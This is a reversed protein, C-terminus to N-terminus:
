IDIVHLLTADIATFAWDHLNEGVDGGHGLGWGSGGRESRVELTKVAVDMIEPGIGDGPLLTVAHKRSAEVRVGRVARMSRRSASPAAYPTFRCSVSM